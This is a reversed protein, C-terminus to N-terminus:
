DGPQREPRVSGSPSISGGRHLLFRRGIEGCHPCPKRDEPRLGPQEDLEAECNACLVVLSASVVDNALEEAAREVEEESRRLRVRFPPRPPWSSLEIGPPQGLIARYRELQAVARELVMRTQEDSLGLEKARERVRRVYIELGGPGIKVPGEARSLLVGLCVMAVGMVALAVALSSKDTVFAGVVFAVGAVVLVLAGHDAFWDNTSRPVVRM